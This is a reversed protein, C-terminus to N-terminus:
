IRSKYLDERVCVCMNKGKNTVQMDGYNHTVKMQQLKLHCLYCIVGTPDGPSPTCTM